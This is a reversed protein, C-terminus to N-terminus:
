AITNFMWAKVKMATALQLVVRRRLSHTCLQISHGKLPSRPLFENHSPTPV